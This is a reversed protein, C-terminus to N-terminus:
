ACRGIDTEKHPSPAGSYVESTSIFLFKGKPKLYRFLKQVEITNINICALKDKSFMQPQGYGAGSIVYDYVSEVENPTDDFKVKTVEIDPYSELLKCIATGVLGYAGTILLKTKM